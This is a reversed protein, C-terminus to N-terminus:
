FAMFPLKKPKREQVFPQNLLELMPTAARFRNIIEPLMRGSTMVGGDLTSELFWQRRRVLDEAPHDKAFGKPVRSLQEGQLEGMAGRLTKRRLIERFEEHREALLNRIALLEEREPMYVGAFVLLEKATFHFYFCPGAAKCLNQLYFTAAVHTKYPRKDKSFRTDRYIRFVAKKVPTVYRPAFEALESNIANVLTELPGRVQEEYISKRPQFWERKNHRELGRLFTIAEGSFGPFRNEAIPQRRVALSTARSSM